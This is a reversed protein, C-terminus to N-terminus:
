AGEVRHAALLIHRFALKMAAKYAARISDRDTVDMAVALVERGLARVEDATKDLSGPIAIAGVRGDGERVTRGTIVIDYGRKALALAGCRGIGRSAGTVLAVRRGADQEAM